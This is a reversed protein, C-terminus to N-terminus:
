DIEVLTRVVVGTAREIVVETYLGLWSGVYVDWAPTGPYPAAEIATRFAGIDAVHQAKADHVLQDVSRELATHALDMTAIERLVADAAVQQMAAANGVAAVHPTVLERPHAYARDLAADRAGLLVTARATTSLLWRGSLEDFASAVSQRAGLLFADARDAGALAAADAHLTALLTDTALLAAQTAAADITAGLQGQCSKVQLAAGCAALDLAGDPLAALCAKTASTCSPRPWLAYADGTTLGLKALELGVSATKQVGGTALLTTVTLAGNATLDFAQATTLDITFARQDTRQVVGASALVDSNDEYTHGSIRYVTSGAVVVPALAATLYIKASGAVKSLRPQVVVHGTLHDPRSASHTFGLGVFQDVGDSLMSAWAVGRSVQFTRPSAQTWDGYVDDIIYANGDTLNRSTRGHLVFTTGVREIARDVWLTTDSSRVTLETRTESTVDSADVNDTEPGNGAAACGAALGAVIAVHVLHM